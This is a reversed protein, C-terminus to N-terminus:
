SPQLAIERKLPRVAMQVSYAGDERLTVRVRLKELILRWQPQSLRNINRSALECFARIEEEDLKANKTSALQEVLESIERRVEDKAVQIETYRAQLKQVPYDPLVLHMNVAKDEAHEWRALEAKKANLQKELQEISAGSELQSKVAPILREPSLLLEKITTELASWLNRANIRPRKCVACRYYPYGHVPYGAMRRGCKCFVMGRLPPYDLKANRTSNTQNAKLQSQIAQFQENTLITEGESRHILEPKQGESRPRGGIGRGKGKWAYFEGILQPDALIRTVTSRSWAKGGKPAPVGAKEMKSCITGLSAGEELLWTAWKRIWGAREPNPEARGTEPNYDFPWRVQGNPIKHDQLARRRRGRMTNQRMTEVYAQAQTAKTLYREVSEPDLADLLLRERAFYVKMGQRVVESLLPFSGFLFRTERDVRPFLLAEIEGRAFLAMGERVAVEFKERDWRTAPEQIVRKFKEDVELGLQPAIPLVDEFWQVDPGYGKLQDEASVRIITMAKTM